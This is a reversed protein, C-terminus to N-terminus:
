SQGKRYQKQNFNLQSYTTLLTMEILSEQAALYCYSDIFLRIQRIGRVIETGMSSYLVKMGVEAPILDLYIGILGPHHETGLSTPPVMEPRYSEM